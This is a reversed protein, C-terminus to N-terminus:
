PNFYKRRNIEYTLHKEVNQWFELIASNLKEKKELAQRVPESYDSGHCERAICLKGSWIHSLYRSMELLWDLGELSFSRRDREYAEYQLRVAKELQENSARRLYFRWARELIRNRFQYATFIATVAAIWLILNGSM